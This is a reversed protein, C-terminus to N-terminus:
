YSSVLLINLDMKLESPITLLFGNQQVKSADFYARFTLHYILNGEDNHDDLVDASKEFRAFVTQDDTLDCLDTFRM